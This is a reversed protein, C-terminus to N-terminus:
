LPYTVINFFVLRLETESSYGSIVFNPYLLSIERDWQVEDHKNYYSPEVTNLWDGSVSITEYLRVVNPHRLQGLIRAERNLNQRVYEEKIQQRDIM